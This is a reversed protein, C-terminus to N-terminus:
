CHAILTTRAAPSARWGTPGTMVRPIGAGWAPVERATREASRGGPPQGSVSKAGGTLSSGKPPRSPAAELRARLLSQVAPWEAALVSFMASDGLLGDEGPAHSPSWSRLVGEWRAGLGAIPQRSRENRESSEPRRGHDAPGDPHGSHPGAPVARTPTTAPRAPQRSNAPHEDPRSRGNKDDVQDHGLANGSSWM